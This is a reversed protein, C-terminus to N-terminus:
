RSLNEAPINQLQLTSSTYQMQLFKDGGSQIYKLTIPHYGAKLEITSTRLNKEHLGDNEILLMGDIYFVSGDDSTLNFTYTDDKFIKLYGSQIFGFNENPVGDCFGIEPTFCKLHTQNSDLSAADIQNGPLIYSSLGTSPTELIIPTFANHSYVASSSISQKGNATICISKVIVTPSSSFDIKFPTTYLKSKSTPDSGDTSYYIKCLPVLSKLTITLSNQYTTLSNSGTPEPVRFNIHKMDLLSFQPALHETFTTWNKQQPQTWAIESLAFMRPMAMYWAKDETAIYETWLNAQVGLIHKSEALTLSPPVVNYSYVKELPLFGGICLPELQLNGQGHDFYCYSGPTMVCDHNQKSAAIGGEEGRWSMVTANPSLGGELIEDWGILKRGHASLFADIQSIFYSQLQEETKLGHMKMIKQAVPSNHWADKPVEDGGVHIYTSPFLAMVETLVNELFHITTDTPCYVDYFVGWRTAVQFSDGSCALFPYSALAAMSHGPMEIEPVISIHLSQAYAVVEKIQEQTYYGGYSISDGIYPNFNKDIMTESRQSGIQTLLPYQKIEIRWGQDDTLHWHFTNLKLSAMEDLYKKIFTVSFFHRCCDLHMGRWSFRPYDRVECCPITYSTSAAAPLLQVLSQLGYFVGTPSGCIQIENKYIKMEYGEEPLTDFGQYSKLVIRSLATSKDAVQLLSKFYYQNLYNNLWAAENGYGTAAVIQTNSSLVFNGTTLKQEVPAPIIPLTSQASLQLAFFLFLFAFLNHM